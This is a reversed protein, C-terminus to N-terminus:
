TSQRAALVDQLRESPYIQAILQGEVRTFLGVRDTRASYIIHHQPIDGADLWVTADRSQPYHAVIFPLHDDLGLSKRFRKVDGRTYGGPWHRTKLRNWTLEHVLAPQERAEILADLGVARRPPGAHCALFDASLAVLPSGRYFLAMEQVYEDGRMERLCREWLVSQPVGGKMVDPSFSEHNGMLLVVRDPWNRKLALVLDMMLVSAAMDELEGDEESHILDGLLVLVAEGAELADLFANETLVTLLNDVRAHLDGVIIPAPQPPLEVVAGANGLADKRRWPDDILRSNVDRIQALAAAPSLPQLPGGFLDAVRDLRRLREDRFAVGGREPPLVSLYTGLESIPDRFLLEDGRHTIQLHRRFADRPESFLLRQGAQRHEIAVSAGPELRLAQYIGHAQREPDFLRYAPPGAAGGALPLEPCVHLVQRGMEIAYADGSCPVGLSKGSLRLRDSAAPRVPQYRAGRLLDRLAGFPSRKTM